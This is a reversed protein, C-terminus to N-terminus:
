ESERRARIRARLDNVEPQSSEIRDRIEDAQRERQLLYDDVKESHHLYYGIVAYVDALDLTPYSQVIADPTVGRKFACIVLELLVRSKGVRLAGDPEERLPPREADLVIAVVIGEISYSVKAECLLFVM